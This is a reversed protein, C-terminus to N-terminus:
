ATTMSVCKKEQALDPGRKGCLVGRCRTGSVWCFMSGSRDSGIVEVLSTAVTLLPSTFLNARQVRLDVFRARFCFPRPPPPALLSRKCSVPAGGGGFRRPKLTSEIQRPLTPGLADHSEGARHVTVPSTDVSITM